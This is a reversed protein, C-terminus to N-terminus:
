HDVRINAFDREQRFLRQITLILKDEDNIRNKRTLWQWFTRYKELTVHWEGRNRDTTLEASNGTIAVFYRQGELNADFYWGWDEQDPSTCAVNRQRLQGALWHALDEGFCCPNIFHPKQDSLNFRSTEFLIDCTNL